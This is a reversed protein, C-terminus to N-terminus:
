AEFEKGYSRGQNELRLAHIIELTAEEITGEANVRMLPINFQSAITIAGKLESARELSIDELSLKRGRLEELQRRALITESPAEVLVLASIEQLLEGPQIIKDQGERIDTFHLDLLVIGKMIEFKKILEMGFERRLRDRSPIDHDFFGRGTKELTYRKLEDSMFIVRVEPYSSALRRLITTKGVGRTGGVAILKLESSIM